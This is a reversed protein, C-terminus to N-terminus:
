GSIYFSESEDKDGSNITLRLNPPCPAGPVLDIVVTFQHKWRYRTKEQNFPKQYNLVVYWRSEKLGISSCHWEKEHKRVM